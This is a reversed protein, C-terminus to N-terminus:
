HQLLQVLDVRRVGIEREERARLVTRGRQALLEAVLAPVVVPRAVANGVRQDVARELPEFRVPGVLALRHEVPAVCADAVDEVAVEFRDGHEVPLHRREARALDVERPHDEQM